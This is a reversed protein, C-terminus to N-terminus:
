LAYRIGQINGPSPKENLAKRMMVIPSSKLAQYNWKPHSQYLGVQRTTIKNPSREVKPFFESFRPNESMKKATKLMAQDRRIDLRELGAKELGRRYSVDLGFIIKLARKQLQELSSSGQM